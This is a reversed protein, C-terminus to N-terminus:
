KYFQEWNNGERLAFLTGECILWGSVYDQPNEVIHTQGTCLSKGTQLEVINWAAYQRGFAYFFVMNESLRCCHVDAHWEGVPACPRWEGKSLNITGLQYTANSKESDSKREVVAVVEGATPQLSVNVIVADSPLNVVPIPQIASSSPFPFFVAGAHSLSYDFLYSVVSHTLAYTQFVDFPSSNPRHEEYWAKVAKVDDQLESVAREALRVSEGERTVPEWQVLEVQGAKGAVSRLQYCGGKPTGWAPLAYVVHAENGAPERKVAYITTKKWPITQGSLIGCLAFVVIVFKMGM